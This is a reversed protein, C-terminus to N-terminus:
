EVRTRMRSSRADVYLWATTGSALVVSVRIYSAGREYEDAAALEADTVVFVTGRVRSERSGTFSANAYHTHGTSAIVKPDDIRILTPEFGPLEDPRGHLRRGFTAVQVREDQLAGYSFLLPM